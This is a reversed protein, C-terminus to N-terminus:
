GGFNGLMDNVINDLVSHQITVGSAGGSPVAGALVCYVTKTEPDYYPTDGNPCTWETGNFSPTASFDIISPDAGESFQPLLQAAANTATQGPTLTALDNPNTNTLTVGVPQVAAQALNPGPTTAKTPVIKNKMYQEYIILAIVALLGGAILGGGKM